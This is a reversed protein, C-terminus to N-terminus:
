MRKFSINKARSSSVKFGTIAGTENREFNIARFSGKNGIFYDQMIAKLRFNGLRPHKAVLQDEDTFFSYYTDLEESYYRGTFGSLSTANYDAPEYKQFAISYGDDFMLIMEHANFTISIYEDILMEFENEGVAQLATKSGDKRLYYLSDNVVKIHRSYRDKQNWYYGEFKELRSTSLALPTKRQVHNTAATEKIQFHDKLTIETLQQVMRGGNIASNNSLILISSNENPFRGVFAQYSADVGSHSIRKIGKYTDIFQGLGYGTNEGNKLKGMTNMKQFITSHGVTPKSFNIVWKSLDEVTTSLNTAGVSINNFLDEYYTGEKQYYSNASNPIVLGYADIFASNHMQLPSFIRKETFKAFSMGSVRAVIEALLTYGSNSYMFEAGPSFNLARQNYILQLVQENTINDDLRWGALRLLNWQDRLGSTHLLLTRLTLGPNEIKMEPLYKQVNDDLSLKGEHELLLIAFATFQKSVSAVHFSTNHTIPINHELNALGYQKQFVLSDGHVIGISVGPENEYKEYLSDIQKEVRVQDFFAQNSQQSFTSSPIILFAWILALVALKM